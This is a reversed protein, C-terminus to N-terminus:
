LCNTSPVGNDAEWKVGALSNADAVSVPSFAYGAPVTGFYYFEGDLCKWIDSQENAYVGFKKTILAIGADVPDSAVGNTVGITGQYVLIFQANTTLTTDTYQVDMSTGSAMTGSVAYQEAVTRIGGTDQKLLTFSGGLFDQSSINTISFLFNGANTGPQIALDIQGRFFYDLIGASYEVAKPILISHYDQLVTSDDITPTLIQRSIQINQPSTMAMVDLYGLVSHHDFQIGDGTKKLYVRKIPAGDKRFSGGISTAPNQWSSKYQTSTDRSPFPFHHYPDSAPVAENYLADEGLFNGNCFEALGIKANGAAEQVLASSSGGAYKGTDWFNLLTSFGQDQWYNWGHPQLDFWQPNKLYSAAGYNEIFRLKEDYHNDNRVHDPSTLDQNLHLVHGLAYLMLAMNENRDIRNANTLAACECSRANSWTYANTGVSVAPISPGRIGPQSAWAYSNTINFPLGTIYWPHESADTIGKVKGSERVPVLTYFHDVPRLTYLGAINNGYIQEDEYYSGEILWALPPFAGKCYQYPNATLLTSEVNENLFRASGDSSSFAGETIRMHVPGDHGSCMIPLFLGSYLATLVLHQRATLTNKM